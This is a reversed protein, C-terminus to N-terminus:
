ASCEKHKERWTKLGKNFAVGAQMIGDLAPCPPKSLMVRGIMKWSNAPDVGAARAVLNWYERSAIDIVKKSEVPDLGRTRVFKRCMEMTTQAALEYEESSAGKFPFRMTRVVEPSLKRGLIVAMSRQSIRAGTASQSGTHVHCIGSSNRRYFVLKEPLNGIRFVESARAWYDFDECTRYDPDYGGIRQPVIRRMISSSNNISPGYLMMWGIVTPDTPVQYGKLVEGNEDIYDYSSGVIAIDPHEDLYHCQRELRTKASKDDSDLRAIYEGRAMELALNLSRELGLKEANKHHLIRNDGYGDIKNVVEPETDPESVVILEFDRYTQELVSDIAEGIWPQAGHVPMIVSVKPSRM